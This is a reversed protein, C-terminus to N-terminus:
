PLRAGGLVSAPARRPTREPVPPEPAAPAPEVPALRADSALGDALERIHVLSRGLVGGSRGSADGKGAEIVRLSLLATQVFNRLAHALQRRHELDHRSRTEEELRGYEAVAEGIATDLCRNLTHFEESSIAASREVALATIAEGVDAYDHVVQSITYGLLLLAGGHRTAGAAIATPSFPTATTELRLTEALQTLFLPVGRDLEVAPTAPSPRASVRARARSILEERNSQVFDHLM